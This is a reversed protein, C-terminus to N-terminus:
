QRSLALISVLAPDVCIIVHWDSKHIQEKFIVM